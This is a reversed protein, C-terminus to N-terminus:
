YICCTICCYLNLPFLKLPNMLSVQQEKASSTSSPPSTSESSSKCHPISNIMLTKNSQNNDNNNNHHDHQINLLIINSYSSRLFELQKIMQDLMGMLNRESRSSTTFEQEKRVDEDTQDEQQHNDNMCEEGDAVSKRISIIQEFSNIVKFTKEILQNIKLESTSSSSSSLLSEMEDASSSSSTEKDKRSTKRDQEPGKDEKM